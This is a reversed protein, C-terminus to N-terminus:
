RGLLKRRYASEICYELFENLNSINAQTILNSVMEDYQEGRRGIVVESEIEEQVDQFSRKIGPTKGEIKIVFVHGKAEIPNSVEGPKM